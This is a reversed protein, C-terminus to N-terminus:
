TPPATPTANIPPRDVIPEESATLPAASTHPPESTSSIGKAVFGWLTQAVEEPERALRRYTIRLPTYGALHLTADRVPDTEFALRREHFTRSDLEVAVKAREWVCDVEFGAVSVNMAPLPLGARKCLDLFDREFDNRSRPPESFQEGLVARLSRIGRRGRNRAITAEIETLDFLGRREAEEIARELEWDRAVEAFDLLTRALTTIPIGHRVSTDDAHLHRVRHLRIGDRAARGREPVTVEIIPSSSPRLEWIGIAPRHSLVAAPGYSLVSAMCRGHWSLVRHGVAYVGFAIRHLNGKRVRHEIAGRGLGM